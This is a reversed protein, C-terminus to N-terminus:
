PGKTWCGRGGNNSVNGGGDNSNCMRMPNNPDIWLGHHDVHARLM